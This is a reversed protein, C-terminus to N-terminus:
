TDRSCARRTCGNGAAAAFITQIASFRTWLHGSVTEAGSLTLSTTATRSIRVRRITVSIQDRSRRPSPDTQIPLASGARHGRIGISGAAGLARLALTRM